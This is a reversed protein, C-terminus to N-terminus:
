SFPRRGASTPPLRPRWTQAAQQRLASDHTVTAAYATIRMKTYGAAHPDRPLKECLLSWASAFEPCDILQILEMAIQDGGFLDLFEGAGLNPSGVDSLQKTQPDYRFALRTTFAEPMAGISKM